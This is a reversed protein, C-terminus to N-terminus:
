SSYMGRKIQQAFAPISNKLEDFTGVGQIEGRDVYVVYDANRVTSLRHAVVLTTVKGRLKEVLAVIEHETSSDLANTAEDLVLFDPNRYLARAIGVRQMQGGSMSYPGSDDTRNGFLELILASRMASTAQEDNVASLDWELAVNGLLPISALHTSQPVYAFRHINPSRFVKGDTPELLGLCVEVLTTKGAGSPGVVAYMLGSEFEM